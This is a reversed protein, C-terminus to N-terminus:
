VLPLDCLSLTSLCNRLYPPIRGFCMRLLVCYFSGLKLLSRFKMMRNWVFLLSSKDKVRVVVFELSVVATKVISFREVWIRDWGGRYSEKESEPLKNHLRFGWLARLHIHNTASSFQLLVTSM